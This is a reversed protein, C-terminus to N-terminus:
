SLHKKVVKLLNDVDFPKLIVDDTGAAACKSVIDPVDFATLAVVPIEQTKPDSKIRRCVEFGDVRPLMIDLVILDFKNVSLIELADEGTEATKVEYGAQELITSLLKLTEPFDEVVLISKNM